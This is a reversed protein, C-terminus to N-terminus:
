FEKENDSLDKDILLLNPDLVIKMPMFGLALVVPNRIETVRVAKTVRLSGQQNYCGVETFDNLLEPQVLEV